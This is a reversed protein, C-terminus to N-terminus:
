SLQSRYWNITRTIGEEFSYLPKFGTDETLKAIDACLYMPQNPYYDIKGYGIPVEPNIIKHIIEVYYRMPLAVGSGLPYIAGDQGKIGIALMAQAVDDVYCYDWIQKCETVQPSDGALFSKILYMIFTNESNFEGYTSLIRIHCHRIEKKKCCLYALRGAAFKSMAYANHPNVPTSPSLKINSAVVGYEAQSGAFIFSKCGLREALDVASLTTNINNLQMNINDREIVDTGTWALHFFVDYDCKFEGINKYESLDACIIKLRDGMHIGSISPHLPNRAIGLVEINKSLALRAIASGIFSTIGSIVIRM